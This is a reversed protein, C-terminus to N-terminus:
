FHVSFSLIMVCLKMNKFLSVLTKLKMTLREKQGNCGGVMRWEQKMLVKEALSQHRNTHGNKFALVVICRALVDLFLKLVHCFASLDFVPESQKRNRRKETFFIEQPFSWWSRIKMKTGRFDAYVRFLGVGAPMLRLSVSCQRRTLILQVTKM